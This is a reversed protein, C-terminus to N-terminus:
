LDEKEIRIPKLLIQYKKSDLKESRLQKRLEQKKYHLLEFKKSYKTDIASKIMEVYKRYYTDCDEAYYLYLIETIVWPYINKIKQGGWVATDDEILVFGYDCRSLGMRSFGRANMRHEKIEIARPEVLQVM